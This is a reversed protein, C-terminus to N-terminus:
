SGMGGQTPQEPLYFHVSVTPAWDKHDWPLSKNTSRDWLPVWESYLAQWQFQRWMRLLTESVLWAHALNEGAADCGASLAAFAALEKLVCAWGHWSLLVTASLEWSSGDPDWKQMANCETAPNSPGWGSETGTGEKKKLKKVSTSGKMRGGKGWSNQRQYAKLM